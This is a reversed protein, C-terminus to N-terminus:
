TNKKQEELESNIVEEVVEEKEGSDILSKKILEPSDGSEISRRVSERIRIKAEDEQAEVKFDDTIEAENSQEVAEAIKEEPMELLDSVSAIDVSMDDLKKEVISYDVSNRNEKIQKITNDMLEYLNMDAQNINEIVEKQKSIVDM